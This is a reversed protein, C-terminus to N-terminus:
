YGVRDWQTKMFAWERARSVGKEYYFGVPIGTSGGTTVYEFASEPYNRAKLDPLNNQLDERTLYPLLKLDEPSRIDGPVLGRERFVRRYYPVNRYAHDLLRSLARAQYAELEERSWRQSERLFAYTKRYVSYAPLLGLAKTTFSERDCIREGLRIM